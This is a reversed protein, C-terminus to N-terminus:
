PLIIEDRVIADLLLYANEKAYDPVRKDDSNIVYEIADLVRNSEIISIVAYCKTKTTEFTYDRAEGYEKHM